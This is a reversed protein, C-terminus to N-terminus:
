LVADRDGGRDRGRWAFPGSIASWPVPVVARRPPRTRCATEAARAATRRADAGTPAAVDRDLFAASFAAAL